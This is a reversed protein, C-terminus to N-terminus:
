DGEPTDLAEHAEALIDEMRENNVVFHWCGSPNCYGLLCPHSGNDYTKRGKYEYYGTEENKVRPSSRSVYMECNVSDLVDDLTGKAHLAQLEPYNAIDIQEEYEGIPYSDLCLGDGSYRAYENHSYIPDCDFSADLERAIWEVVEKRSGGRDDMWDRVKESWNHSGEAVCGFYADPFDGETCYDCVWKEVGNLLDSVIKVDSEHCADATSHADGKCDYFADAHRVNGGETEVMDDALRASPVLSDLGCGDITRQMM